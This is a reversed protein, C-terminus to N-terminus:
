PRRTPFGATFGPRGANGSRQQCPSYAAAVLFDLALDKFIGSKATQMGRLQALAKELSRVAKATQGQLAQVEGLMNLARVTYFLYGSGELAQLSEVLRRRAHVYRGSHRDTRALMSQNFAIPM